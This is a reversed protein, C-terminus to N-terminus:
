EENKAIVERSLYLLWPLGDRYEDHKARYPLYDKAAYYLIWALEQESYNHKTDMIVNIKLLKKLNYYLFGIYAFEYTSMNDYFDAPKKRYHQHSLMDLMYSFMPIDETNISNDVHIDNRHTDVQESAMKKFLEDFSNKNTENSINFYPSITKRTFTVYHNLLIEYYGHEEKFVIKKQAIPYDKICDPLLFLLHFGKGSMSVEGYLYPLSLLEQKIEDPCKPEIDLVVFDDTLADLYFAHNTANPVFDCLEPLTMLSKENMHVAGTIEGTDKLRRMDIPRKKNDSITWKPIDMVRKILPNHYFEPFVLYPDFSNENM